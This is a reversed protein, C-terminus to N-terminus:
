EQRIAVSASLTAGSFLGFPDIIAAAEMPLM